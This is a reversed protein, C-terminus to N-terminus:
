DNYKNKKCSCFVFNLMKLLYSYLIGFIISTAVRIVPNNIYPLKWLYLALILADILYIELTNKGIIDIPTLLIKFFPIREMYCFVEALVFCIGLSLIIFPYREIGYLFFNVGFIKNPIATFAISLFIFSLISLYYTCNIFKTSLNIKNCLCYGLILGEIYIPLRCITTIQLPQKWFPITVFISLLLLVCVLKLSFHKHIINYLIPSIFYFVTIIPIYWFRGYDIDFSYKPSFFNLQTVYGIISEFSFDNRYFAFFLIIPLAPLLRKIRKKYFNLIDDDKHLSCYIGFGSLLIFIDVGGFGLNFLPFKVYIPLSFDLKTTHFLIVWLIAIGMILTRYKSIKELIPNEKM